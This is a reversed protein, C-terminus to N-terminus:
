FFEYTQLCNKESFLLLSFVNVIDMRKKYLSLGSKYLEIYDKKKSLKRCFYYEFINFNLHDKYDSLTNNSQKKETAMLKPYFSGVRYIYNNTKNNNFNNSINTNNNNNNNNNNNKDNNFHFVQNNNFYSLKRRKSNSSGKSNENPKEKIIVLSNRRQNNFFNQSSNNENVPILSNRSMNINKNENNDILNSKNLNNNSNFFQKDLPVYLSKKFVKTNFDRISHIRLTMKKQKLNFNFIGNLIKLEPILRNSIISLLSFITNMLQMYGGVLSLINSIKTYIRKQIHTIEDLEFDISIIESEKYGENRLYFSDEKNQFQIYKKEEINESFLGIDTKIKTIRYYVIFKQNLNTFLNQLTPIIPESYNSPNLGIDKMLISFYGKNLYSDIVEQPKCTNNNETNNRCPYLMIRIKSMRNYNYGGILTLNFDKLCYSNNLEGETFLHNFEEGFYKKQCIEYELEKKETLNFEGNIKNKDLFLIKPYYISEDIFRNYTFPNNLGFAFYFLHPNINIYPIDNSYEISDYVQASKRKLILFLYTSFLILSLLIYLITLFLGFYTGIKEKNNFFFSIRKSYIDFFALSDEM